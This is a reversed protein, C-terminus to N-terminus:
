KSRSSRRDYFYLYIAYLFALPIGLELIEELRSTFVSVSADLYVGFSSLKRALGDLTKSIVTLGLAFFVVYSRLSLAALESLFTKLHRSALVYVSYLILVVVSIGVFKEVVSVDNALLFKSKFIGTETFRKDFDLERLGMALFVLYVYWYDKLSSRGAVYFLLGICLFYGFASITEVIGVESLVLRYVEESWSLSWLSFFIFIALFTLVVLLHQWSVRQNM